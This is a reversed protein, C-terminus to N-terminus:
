NKNVIFLVTLYIPCSDALLAATQAQIRGADQGSAWQQQATSPTM